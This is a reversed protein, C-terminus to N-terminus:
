FKGAWVKYGPLVCDEGFLLSEMCDVLNMVPDPGALFNNILDHAEIARPMCELTFEPHPTNLISELDLQEVPVSCAQFKQVPASLVTASLLCALSIITKM